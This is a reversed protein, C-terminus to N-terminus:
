ECKHISFNGNVQNNDDDRAVMRGTVIKEGEDSVSLIEIKGQTCITNTFAGDEPADVLTVTQGEGSSLDLSLNITNGEKLDDGELSFIISQYVAGFGAGRCSDELVESYMEISFSGDDALSERYYGYGLEWDNSEIKGSLNQDKFSLSPSSGNNDDDDDDDSCAIGTFMLASMVFAM